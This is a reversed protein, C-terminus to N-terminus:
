PQRQITELYGIFNGIQKPTLKFEPMDPHGVVIGEALAEELSELPWLSRFTRFPPAQEFPSAGSPGIAHCRACNRETFLRGAAIDAEAGNATTSALLVFLAAALASLGASSPGECSIGSM